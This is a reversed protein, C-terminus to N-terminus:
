RLEMWANQLRAAAELISPQSDQSAARIMDRIDERVVDKFSFLSSNNSKLIRELSKLAEVRIQSYKQEDMGKKLLKMSRERHSNYVDIAADRTVSEDNNIYNNLGSCSEIAGILQMVVRRVSWMEKEVANYMWAILESVIYIVIEIPSLSLSSLSTNDLASLDKPWGKYMCEVIMMRFAPDTKSMLASYEELITLVVPTSKSETSEVEMETNLVSVGKATCNEDAEVTNSSSSSPATVPDKRRIKTSGAPGYRVGFM